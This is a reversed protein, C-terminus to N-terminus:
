FHLQLGLSIDTYSMIASAPGNLSMMRLIVRTSTNNTLQLETGGSFGFGSYSSQVSQFQRQHFSGGLFPRWKEIEWYSVNQNIINVGSGSNMPFFHVTLDPGFGMDGRFTKSYFITYGPCLEVQPFIQFSASLSYVGPTSLNVTTTSSSTTTPATANISYAGVDINLKQAEASLGFGLIIMITAIAQLYNM